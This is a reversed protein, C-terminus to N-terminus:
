AGGELARLDIVTNVVAMSATGDGSTAGGVFDVTWLENFGGGGDSEELKVKYPGDGLWIGGDEVYGNADLVNPNTIPITGTYDSYVDKLTTTNAEYFSVRGLSLPDGNNDFFQPRPSNLVIAM